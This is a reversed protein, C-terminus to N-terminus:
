FPMEAEWADAVDDFPVFDVPELAKRLKARKNSAKARDRCTSCTKGLEGNLKPTAPALTCVCCRGEKRAKDRNRAKVKNWIPRSCERELADLSLGNTMVAEHLIADVRDFSLRV